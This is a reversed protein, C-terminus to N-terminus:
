ASEQQAPIYAACFGLLEPDRLSSAHVLRVAAPPKDRELWRRCSEHQPCAADHCRCVDALLTM